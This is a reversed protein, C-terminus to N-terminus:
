AKLLFTLAKSFVSDAVWMLISVVAVSFVVVVTYLATERSTPWIVKKMEARVERFFRGIAPLWGRLNAM